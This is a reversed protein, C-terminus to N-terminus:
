AEQQIIEGSIFDFSRTQVSGNNTNGPLKAPFLSNAVCDINGLNDTITMTSEASAPNDLLKNFLSTLDAIYPSTQKLTINVSGARSINHSVAYGGDATSTGSYADNDYNYSVTDLLGSSGNGGGIILRDSGNNITVIVKSLSIVKASM